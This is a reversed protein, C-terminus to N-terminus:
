EEQKPFLTELRSRSAAFGVLVEGGIVMTPTMMRGQLVQLMEQVAQPDSSVDREIYRV